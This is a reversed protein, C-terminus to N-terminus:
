VSVKRQKSRPTPPGDLGSCELGSGNNARSPPKGLLKGVGVRRNVFISAMRRGGSQETNAGRDVCANRM